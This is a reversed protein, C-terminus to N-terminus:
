RLPTTLDLSRPQPLARRAGPQELLAPCLRGLSNAEITAVFRRYQPSLTPQGSEDASVRPWSGDTTASTVVTRAGLSFAASDYGLINGGHGIATGCPTDVVMLGLGYGPTRPTPTIMRRYTAPAVLRGNRLARFFRSLDSTTTVLNGSGFFIWEAQRSVDVPRASAPEGVMEPSLYGRVHPDRMGAFRTALGTRSLGLPRIIQRRLVTALPKGTVREVILAALTYNLNSYQFRTGPTATLQVRGALRLTQATTFSQRLAAQLQQRPTDGAPMPQLAEYRGAPLGSTHNLLQRVTVKPGYRLGPLYTSVRANPRIKRDEVLQMVATAVFAKTISAARLRSNAYATHGALDRAGITETSLRRPGTETTQVALGGAARIDRLTPVTAPDPPAATAAAPTVLLGSCLATLATAVLTTRMPEGPDHVTLCWRAVGDM